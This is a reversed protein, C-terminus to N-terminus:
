RPDLNLDVNFLRRNRLQDSSCNINNIFFAESSHPEALDTRELDFNYESSVSCTTNDETLDLMCDDDYTSVFTEYDYKNKFSLLSGLKRFGFSFPLSSMGSRRDMKKPVSCVNASSSQQTLSIQLM